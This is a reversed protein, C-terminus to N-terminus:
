GARKPRADRCDSSQVWPERVTDGPQEPEVRELWIERFYPRIARPCMLRKESYEATCAVDDLVVCAQKMHRMVGTQEDIIRAVVRRVTSVTGCYRAMEKDFSLGRNRCNEDLSEEIERKARV